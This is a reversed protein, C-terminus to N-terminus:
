PAQNEYFIVSSHAGNPQPAPSPTSNLYSATPSVLSIDLESPLPAPSANLYSAAQSAVVFEFEDDLTEPVANLFSSVQSSVALNLGEGEAGLLGGHLYSVVQSSAIMLPASDANLPDSGERLEDPDSIGDGDSDIKTPDTNSRIEDGDNLGDFDTDEDGDKIGDGDSDAEAPNQFLIVEGVNPLGDNDFDEMGDRIGDGDSDPNQPDLGLAEELDDPVGDADGDEFGYIKFTSVFPESLRNGALDTLGTEIRFQYIGPVADSPFKLFLTSTDDYYERSISVTEDDSTGFVGDHGSRRLSVNRALLEPKIPESFVALLSTLSGILDGDSPNVARVRPPTADPVLQLSVTESRAINGGTDTALAYVEFTDDGDEIAPSILGLEFPFNGDLAVPVDDIFYEVSRVMVDDTAPTRVSFVKGEEVKGDSAEVEIAITPAQGATDFALFNIVQLGSSGDAIYALGNYLSVAIARGPTPYTTIFDDEGFDGDLRYLSVDHAGDATSNPSLTSVGLASGTPVIQKWGQAATSNQESLSPDALNALDFVNFGSTHLAFLFDDGIVLRQRIQGAGLSGPSNDDGLLTLQDGFTEFTYLRGTVLAYLYGGRQGLDQIRSRVQTNRAIELGTVMDVMVITGNNLGAFAVNGRATVANVPSNFKLQHLVRSAPPDSIDIVALGGPGDAVAIYNSFCAVGLANGQTNVQAIRTPADGQRVNFVSVGAEGCPVIAINNITCVDVAPAPTPGSAIIGTAAFFGDLPDRGQRVEAGDSFGDGDTDPNNVHTGAIEELPDPLGDNDSDPANELLAYDMCPIQFARGAGPTTFDITGLSLTEEYFSLMRYATRPRLIINDIGEVDMKGRAIIESSELEAMAWYFNGGGFVDRDVVFNSIIQGKEIAGGEFQGGPTTPSPESPVPEEDQAGAFPATPLLLGLLLAPFLPRPPDGLSCLSPHFRKM